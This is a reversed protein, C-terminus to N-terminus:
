VLQFSTYFHQSRAPKEAPKRRDMELQIADFDVKIGAPCGDIVGGLAPGHSEGYSTLTFLKGFSNGAM